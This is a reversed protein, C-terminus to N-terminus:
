PEMNKARRQVRTITALFPLARAGLARPPRPEYQPLRWGFSYIRLNRQAFTYHLSKKRSNLFRVGAPWVVQGIARPRALNGNIFRREGRELVAKARAKANILEVRNM